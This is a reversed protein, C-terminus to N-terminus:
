EGAFDSLMPSLADNQKLAKQIPFSDSLHKGTQTKCCTENLSMKILRGLKMPIGTDILINYLGHRTVSEYAEKFDIFLQHEEGNHCRKKRLYKVFPMIVFSARHVRSILNLIAMAFAINLLFFVRQM